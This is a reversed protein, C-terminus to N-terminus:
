EVTGFLGKKGGEDGEDGFRGQFGTHRLRTEGDRVFVGMIQADILSATEGVGRKGRLRGAYRGVHSEVAPTERLTLPFLLVHHSIVAPIM